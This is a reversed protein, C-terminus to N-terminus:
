DAAAKCARSPKLDVCCRSGCSGWGVLLSGHQEGNVLGGIAETGGSAEDAAQAGFSPDGDDLEALVDADVALVEVGVDGGVTLVGVSDVHVAFATLSIESKPTDATPARHGDLGGVV